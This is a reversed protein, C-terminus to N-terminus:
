LFSRDRASCEIHRSFVENHWGHCLRLMRRSPPALYKRLDHNHYDVVYWSLAAKGDVPGVASSDHGKVGVM